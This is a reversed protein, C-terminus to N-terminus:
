VSLLQMICTYKRIGIHNKIIQIQIKKENFINGIINEFIFPTIFYYLSSLQIGNYVSCRSLLLHILKKLIHLTFTEVLRLYYLIFVIIHVRRLARNINM